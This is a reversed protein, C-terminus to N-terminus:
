RASQHECCKRCTRGAAGGLPRLPRPVHRAASPATGHRARATAGKDPRQGGVGEEERGGHQGTRGSREEGCCLPSFFAM